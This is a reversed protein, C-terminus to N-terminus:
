QVSVFTYVYASLVAILNTIAPSWYQDQRFIGRRMRVGEGHFGRHERGLCFHTHKWPLLRLLPNGQRHALYTGEEPRMPESRNLRRHCYWLPPRGIVAHFM